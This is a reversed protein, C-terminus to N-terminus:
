GWELDGDLVDPRFLDLLELVVSFRDLVARFAADTEGVVDAGEQHRASM